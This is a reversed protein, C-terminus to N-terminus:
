RNITFWRNNCTIYNPTMWGLVERNTELALYVMWIGDMVMRQKEELCGLDSERLGLQLVEIYLFLNATQQHNFWCMQFIHEDFQIM